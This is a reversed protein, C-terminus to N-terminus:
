YVKESFHYQKNQIEMIYSLNCIIIDELIKQLVDSNSKGQQFDKDIDKYLQRCLQQFQKNLLDQNYKLESSFYQKYVGIVALCIWESSPPHHGLVFIEKM